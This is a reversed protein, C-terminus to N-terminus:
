SVTQENKHADNHGYFSCHNKFAITEVNEAITKKPKYGSFKIPKM